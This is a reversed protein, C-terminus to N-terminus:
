PWCKKILRTLMEVHRDYPLESMAKIRGKNHDHSSHPIIEIRCSEQRGSTRDFVSVDLELQRLSTVVSNGSGNSFKQQGLAGMERGYGSESEIDIRLFDQFKDSLFEKMPHKLKVIVSTSYSVIDVLNSIESWKRERGASRWLIEALKKCIFEAQKTTGYVEASLSQDSFVLTSIPVISDEGFNIFGGRFYIPQKQQILYFFLDSESLHTTGQPLKITSPDFRSRFTDYIQQLVDTDRLNQFPIAAPSISISVHATNPEIEPPTDEVRLNAEIDRLISGGASNM